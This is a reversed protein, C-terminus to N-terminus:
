KMKKQKFKTCGGAVVVVREVNGNRERKAEGNGAACCVEMMEFEFAM